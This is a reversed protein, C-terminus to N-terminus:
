MIAPIYRDPDGGFQGLPSYCFDANRMAEYFPVRVGSKRNLILYDSHNSYLQFLSSRGTYGDGRQISGAYFLLKERPRALEENINFGPRWITYNRLHALSYGCLPGCVNQATPMM